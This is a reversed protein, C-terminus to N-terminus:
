AGPAVEAVLVAVGTQARVLLDDMAGSLDAPMWVREATAGFGRCIGAIDMRPNTLHLGPWDRRDTGTLARMGDELVEYGGNDAVVLAVPADERAASWIAQIGFMLSGDGQVVARPANM